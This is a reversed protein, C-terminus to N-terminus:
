PKPELLATLIAVGCMALVFVAPIWLPSFVWAWPLDPVIGSARLMVLILTLMAMKM